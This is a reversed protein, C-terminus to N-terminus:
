QDPRQNTFSLVLVKNQGRMKNIHQCVPTHEHEMNHMTDILFSSEIINVSWPAGRM